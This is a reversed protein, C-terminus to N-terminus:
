EKNNLKFIARLGAIGLGLEVVNNVIAAPAGHISYYVIWTMCIFIYMCWFRKDTKKRALLYWWPLVGCIFFVIEILIM